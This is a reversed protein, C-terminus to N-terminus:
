SFLEDLKELDEDYKAHTTHVLTDFVGSLKKSLLCLAEATIGGPVAVRAQLEATTCKGETLLKGTGLLMEGALRQIVTEDVGTLKVASKMWEEVFLAIFAPGCSSFDSCIRTHSETIQLPQSIQALLQEVLIIDNPLMKQGHMCLCVGSYVQNTISPIIKSIKCDLSQELHRIQVPSTISVIIHNSTIVSAIEDVVTKFQLPKVCLFIIDSHGVVEANTQAIRLQPHLMRLKQLKANTRNSAYVENALVAGSRIFSHILLSGMSGTGIFGINM